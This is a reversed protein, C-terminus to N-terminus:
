FCNLIFLLFYIISSLYVQQIPLLHYYSFLLRLLLVTSLSAAQFARALSHSAACEVRSRASLTAPDDAATDGDDEAVTMVPELLPADQACVAMEM